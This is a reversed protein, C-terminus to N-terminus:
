RAEAPRTGAAANVRRNSRRNFEVADVSSLAGVDELESAKGKNWGEVSWEPSAWADKEGLQDGLGVM